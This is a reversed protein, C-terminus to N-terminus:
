ITETRVKQLRLKQTGKFVQSTRLSDNKLHILKCSSQLCKSQFPRFRYTTTRYKFSKALYEMGRIWTELIYGVM